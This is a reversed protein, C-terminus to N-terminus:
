FIMITQGNKRLNMTFNEEKILGYSEAKHNYENVIEIFANLVAKGEALQENVSVESGTKKVLFNESWGQQYEKIDMTNIIELLKM